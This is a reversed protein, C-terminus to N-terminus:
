LYKATALHFFFRPYEVPWLLFARIKVRSVQGVTDYIEHWIIRSLIFRNLGFGCVPYMLIAFGPDVASSLLLGAGAVVYALVFQGIPYTSHKVAM